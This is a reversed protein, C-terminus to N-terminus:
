TRSVGRRLQPWATSFTTSYDYLSWGISGTRRAARLFGDLDAPTMQDAIGGILHVEADDDRLRERLLSVSDKGYRYADRYGSEEDRFTAYAMPMWLDVHDALRRYPFGPWLAPNIVELQVAPYVIAALAMEEPMTARTRRALEVVRQNRRALDPVASTDEIDLAIADFGRGGVRLRALERVFRDDADLDTVYPLFWAVVFLDNDHAREVLARLQARDTLQNSPAGDPNAVQLYLTSTGLDAMDDVADPTVRPPEGDAQLRHAYDFVDVWAGLGRYPELDVDARAPGPAVLVTSVLAAAVAGALLALRRRM